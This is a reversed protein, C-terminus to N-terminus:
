FGNEETKRHEALFVNIKINNICVGSTHQQVYVCVRSYFTRYEDIEGLVHM